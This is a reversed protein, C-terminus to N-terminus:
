HRVITQILGTVAKREQGHHKTAQLRTGIFVALQLDSLESFLRLRLETHYSGDTCNMVDSMSLNM